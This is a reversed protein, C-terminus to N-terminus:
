SHAAARCRRVVVSSCPLDAGTGPRGHVGGSSSPRAIFARHSSTLGPFGIDIVHATFPRLDGARRAAYGAASLIEGLAVGLAEVVAGQFDLVPADFQEIEIAKAASHRLEPSPVWRVFVGDDIEIEVGPEVDLGAGARARRVPLGARLLVAQVAAALAEREADTVM